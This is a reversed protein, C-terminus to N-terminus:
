TQRCQLSEVSGVVVGCKEVVYWWRSMGGSVGVIWCWWWCQLVVLRTVVLGGIGRSGGSGGVTKDFGV